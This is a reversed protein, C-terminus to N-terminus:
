SLTINVRCAAMLSTEPEFDMHPKGDTLMTRSPSIQYIRYVKRQRIELM